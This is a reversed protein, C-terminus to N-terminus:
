DAITYKNTNQLLFQQRDCPLKNFDAISITFPKDSRNYSCNRATSVSINKITSKSFAANREQDTKIATNTTQSLQEDFVSVTQAGTKIEQNQLESQAIASLSFIFFGVILLGTKLYLATLKM